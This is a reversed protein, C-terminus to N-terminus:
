RCWRKGPRRGADIRIVEFMEPPFAVNLWYRFNYTAPSGVPVNEAIVFPAGAFLRVPVAVILYPNACLPVIDGGLRYDIVKAAAPGLRISRMANHRLDPVSWAPNAMRDDVDSDIAEDRARHVSLAFIRQTARDLM